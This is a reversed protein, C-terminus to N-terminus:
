DEGKVEVVFLYNKVVRSSWKTAIKYVYVGESEPTTFEFNSLVINEEQPVEDKWYSLYVMKPMDQYNIKILENPNVVMREIDKYIEPPKNSDIEEMPIGSFGIYDIDEGDITIDSSVSIDSNCGILNIFIVLLLLIRFFSPIRM